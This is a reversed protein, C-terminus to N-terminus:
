NANKTDEMVRANQEQRTEIRLYIRMITIGAEVELDHHHFRWYFNNFRIAAMMELLAVYQVAESPLLHGLGVGDAAWPEFHLVVLVRIELAQNM